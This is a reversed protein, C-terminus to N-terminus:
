KFAYYSVTTYSLLAASQCQSRLAHQYSHSNHTGVHMFCVACLVATICSFGDYVDRRLRILQLATTTCMHARVKLSFYSAISTRAKCSAPAEALLQEATPINHKEALARIQPVLAARQARLQAVREHRCLLKIHNACANVSSVGATHTHIIM